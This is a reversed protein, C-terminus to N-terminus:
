KKGSYDAKLAARVENMASDVSSEAKTKHGEKDTDANKLDNRAEELHTMANQLLAQTNPKEQTAAARKESPVQATVRPMALFACLASVCVVASISKGPVYRM